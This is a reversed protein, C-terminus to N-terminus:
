DSSQDSVEPRYKLQLGQLFNRLIQDKCTRYHSQSPKRFFTSLEHKSVKFDALEFMKLLHTDRLNLAIKLKRFIINNNLKKEPNPPVGERTGRNKIIFEKFPLWIRIAFPHQM